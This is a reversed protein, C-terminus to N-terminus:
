GNITRRIISSALFRYKSLQSKGIENIM